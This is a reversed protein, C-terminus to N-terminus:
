CLLRLVRLPPPSLTRISHFIIGMEMVLISVVESSLWMKSREEPSMAAMARTKNLMIRQGIYEVVFSLFIGAMVIASTTGEYELIGICENGFM